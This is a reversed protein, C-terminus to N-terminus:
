KRVHGNGRIIWKYTTLDTAGMPGRAHLKDTSIGVEAGLGYEGGDAFRTSANIMISASDVAKTFKEAATMSETLIADTHHSGHHNIHDVADNLSDVVKIAIILALYETSWDNEDAPKAKPYLARTKEDGRIEVGKAALDECVKALLRPAADKHFLIHEVANCVAGGPYSTKANVCIDRVQQEMSQTAADVYIHCNGTFHKLVPITSEEVVTRILGEGGRPIVIDIYQDLKLLPPLIARDSSEILQVAAPDIEAQALAKSIIAAIASNSHMAEKGGRLIIANGSKLCLAAADSTVNPRSEYIFLVVGLPVRMKEVRLGNPRVYGEIIQGVPDTQAAIQEVATSMSAIRKDNLKLREVLPQALGSSQASQIDKQNADTLAPSNERILSAVRHLAATKKEDSLEALQRSAARASRGLKQVYPQVDEM